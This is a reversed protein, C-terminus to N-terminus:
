HFVGRSKIQHPAPFVSLNFTIGVFQFLQSPALDSKKRNVALGLDRFLSLLEEVQLTLSPLAFLAFLLCSGTSM